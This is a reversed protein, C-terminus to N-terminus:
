LRCSRHARRGAREPTKSRWRRETGAARHGARHRGLFAIRARPPLGMSWTCRAANLPSAPALDHIADTQGRLIANWFFSWWLPVSARLCLVRWPFQLHQPTDAADCRTEEDAISASDSRRPAAVYGSDLL